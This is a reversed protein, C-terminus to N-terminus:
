ARPPKPGFKSLADAVMAKTLTANEAQLCTTIKAANPREPKGQSKGPAPFCSKVIGESVGLAAAMEAFAPEPPRKHEQATAATPIGIPILLSVIPVSLSVITLLTMFKSAHNTM